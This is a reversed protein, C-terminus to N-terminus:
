SACEKEVDGLERWRVVTNLASAVYRQTTTQLLSELSKVLVCYVLIQNM